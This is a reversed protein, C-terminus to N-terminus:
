FKSCRWPIKNYSFYRKSAGAIKPYCIWESVLMFVTVPCQLKWLQFLKRCVKPIRGSSVRGGLLNCLDVPSFNDHTRYHCCDSLGCRLPPSLPDFSGWSFNPSMRVPPHVTSALSFISAHWSALLREQCIANPFVHFLHPCSFLLLLICFFLFVCVHIRSLLPPSKGHPTYAHIPWFTKVLCNMSNYQTVSLSNSTSSHVQLFPFQSLAIFLLTRGMAYREREIERQSRMEKRPSSDESKSFHFHSCSSSSLLLFFLPSHFQQHMLLNLTFISM